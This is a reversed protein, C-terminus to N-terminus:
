ATPRRLLYHERLHTREGGLLLRLEKRPVLARRVRPSQRARLQAYEHRLERERVLLKGLNEKHVEMQREYGEKGKVDMYGKVGYLRPHEVLSGTLSVSFLERLNMGKPLINRLIRAVLPAAFWGPMEALKDLLNYPTSIIKQFIRTRLRADKPLRPELFAGIKKLLKMNQAIEKKEKADLPARQLHERRQIEADILNQLGQRNMGALGMLMRWRLEGNPDIKDQLALRRAQLEMLEHEATKIRTIWFEQKATFFLIPM